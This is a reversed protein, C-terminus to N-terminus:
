ETCRVCRGGPGGLRGPWSAFCKCFRSVMKLLRDVRRLVDCVIARRARRRGASRARARAGGDGRTRTPTTSSRGHAGDALRAGDLDRDLIMRAAGRECWSRPTARASPRRGRPSVARPDVAPRAGHDRRLEHRGVRAVVVDAERTPAAWTTSSRGRRAGAPRASAYGAAGDALDTTGPRTASARRRRAALRHARAADVSAENLHHAGQSGGFVAAGLRRARRRAAGRAGDARIPIARTCRAARRSSARRRRSASASARRRLPRPTRNAAGPIANQELLVIPVRRLRAALSARSRRTAASGSSWDPGSSARPARAGGRRRTGPAACGCPRRARRRRAAAAGPLLHLPSARARARRAGRHRERSGVFEVRCPRQGRLAEASRSRRPLSARGDRRGRDAVDCVPGHREDRNARSRWCCGSRRWRRGDDGLRRVLRVAADLGKTPLLRARRRHQARGAPRDAVTMGFALLSRSATPTARRSASGACRRRRRVLALVVLAGILGLEEGIVSFIFDTHAAPLYFMKQQGQGLGVGSLGGSGFAILSQCLQFGDGLADQRCDLFTMLRAGAPVADCSRSGSSRRCPSRRLCRRSAPAAGRRRVAHAGSARGVLAATGFDPESCLAAAVVASWWATPCCAADRLERVRDGKRALSRALYLVLALKALERRSSPSRDSRWGADRAAACRRRHRPDARRGPARARRRLLPYALRAIAADSGIRSPSWACCSASASRSWTSASSTCRIASTTRATSALQHQLGDRPRAVVLAAVALVLWPDGGFTRSSAHGSTPWRDASRRGRSSRPM